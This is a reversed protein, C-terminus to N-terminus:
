GPGDGVVHGVAICCHVDCAPALIAPATGTVLQGERASRYSPLLHNHLSGVSASIQARVLKVDAYTEGGGFRGM